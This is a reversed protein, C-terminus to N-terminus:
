DESQIKFWDQYHEFRKRIDVSSINFKDKSYSHFGRKGHPNDRLYVKMRTEHGISVKHGFYEYIRKVAGIPDKVFDRFHL